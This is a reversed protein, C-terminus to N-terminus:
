GVDCGEPWGEIDPWGEFWGLTLRTGDLLGDIEARGDEWGDICGDSEVLGM